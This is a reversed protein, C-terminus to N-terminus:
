FLRNDQKIQLITATREVSISRKRDLPINKTNVAKEAIKSIFVSLAIVLVSLLVRGFETHLTTYLYKIM